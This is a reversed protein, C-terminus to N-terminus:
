GRILDAATRDRRDRAQLKKRLRKIPVDVLHLCIAALPFSV